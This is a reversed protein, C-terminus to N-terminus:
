RDAQTVKRNLIKLSHSSENTGLTMQIKGEGQIYASGRYESGEFTFKFIGNGEYETLHLNIETSELIEAYIKKEAKLKNTLEEQTKLFAKTLDAKIASKEKNLLYVGLIQYYAKGSDSITMLGAKDNFEIAPNEREPIRMIKLLTGKGNKLIMNTEFGYRYPAYTASIDQPNVGIITESLTFDIKSDGVDYTNISLVPTKGSAVEKEVSGYLEADSRQPYLSEYNNRSLVKASTEIIELLRGDKETKLLPLLEDVTTNNSEIFSKLALQRIQYPASSTYLNKFYVTWSPINAAWKAIVGLTLMRSPLPNANENVIEALRPLLAVNKVSSETYMFLASEIRNFDKSEQIEKAVQEQLSASKEFLKEFISANKYKRDVDKTNLANEFQVNIYVKDNRAIVLLAKQFNTFADSTESTSKMLNELKQRLVPSETETKVIYNYVDYSPSSSYSENFKKTELFSIVGAIAQPSQYKAAGLIKLIKQISDLDTWASGQQTPRQVIESIKTSLIEMLDKNNPELCALASYFDPTSWNAPKIKSVSIEAIKINLSCIQDKIETTVKPKEYFPGLVLRTSHETFEQPSIWRIKLMLNLMSVQPGLLGDLPKELFSALKEKAQQHTYVKNLLEKEKATLKEADLGNFYEYLYPALELVGGKELVSLIYTLKAEHSLNQNQIYCVPTNGKEAGSTQVLATYKFKEKLSTNIEKSVNALYDFYTSSSGKLYDRLFPTASKGSPAISSFGYIRPVASFVRSMRDSFSSGLPSYRFASIQRAQEASFGDNMLVQAYQEPTRQDKEKGALTNCGFLFVEKPKHLIGSCSNDCSALELTELPLSFGSSGFFSGGFHGSIVLMDCTIGQKCSEKLWNDKNSSEENENNQSKNKDSNVLTLEIFNFDKPSLSKKFLEIEDNSNITISCVNKKVAFANGTSLLVFAMLGLSFKFSSLAM